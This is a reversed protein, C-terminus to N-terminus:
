MAEYILDRAGSQVFRRVLPDYWDRRSTGIYSIDQSDRSSGIGILNNTLAERSASAVGATYRRKEEERFLEQTDRFLLSRDCGCPMLRNALVTVDAGEIDTM